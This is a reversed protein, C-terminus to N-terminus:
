RLMEECSVGFYDCIAVFKSLPIDRTATEVTVVWARSMGLEAGLAKQSLGLKERERRVALGFRVNVYEVM